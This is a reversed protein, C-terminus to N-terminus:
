RGCRALLLMIFPVIVFCCVLWFIGLGVIIKQFIDMKNWEPVPGLILPM